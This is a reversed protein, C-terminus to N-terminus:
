ICRVHDHDTHKLFAKQSKPSSVQIKCDNATASQLRQVGRRTSENSTSPSKSPLSELSRMQHLLFKM